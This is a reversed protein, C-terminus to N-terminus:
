IGLIQKKKLEYEEQSIIGNKMLEMFKILENGVKDAEAIGANESENSKLIQVLESTISRLSSLQQSYNRQFSFEQGSASGAVSDM